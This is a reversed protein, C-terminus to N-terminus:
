SHCLGSEVAERQRNLHVLLLLPIVAVVCTCIRKTSGSECDCEGVCEFVCDCFRVQLLSDRAYVTPLYLGYHTIFVGMRGRVCVTQIYYPDM